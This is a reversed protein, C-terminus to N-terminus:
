KSSVATTSQEVPDYLEPLLKPPEAGAPSSFTCRPCTKLASQSHKAHPRPTDQSITFVRLVNTHTMADVLLTHTTPYTCLRHRLNNLDSRPVVGRNTPM